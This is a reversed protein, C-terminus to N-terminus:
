AFMVPILLVKLGKFGSTGRFIAFITKVEFFDDENNLNM